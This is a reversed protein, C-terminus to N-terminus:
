QRFRKDDQGVCSFQVFVDKAHKNVQTCHWEFLYNFSHIIKATESKHSCVSLFPYPAHSLTHPDKLWSCIQAKLDRVNSVLSKQSVEWQSGICM